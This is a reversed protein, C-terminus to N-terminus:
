RFRLRIQKFSSRRYQGELIESDFRPNWWTSPAAREFAIPVALGCCNTTPYNYALYDQVQMHAEETESCDDVKDDHQVSVNNCDASEGPASM